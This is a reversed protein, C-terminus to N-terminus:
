VLVTLDAEVGGRTNLWHTYVSHGVPVDINNASVWNLARLADKGTVHFKGYCSLDTLVASDRAALCEREVEGYWPQYGFGPTPLPNPTGNVQLTADLRPTMDLRAYYLPVEWDSREGMVAGAAILRDHVPFHRVGRATKMQHGPRHLTM